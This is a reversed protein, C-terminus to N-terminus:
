GKRSPTNNTCHRSGAPCNRPTGNEYEPRHPTNSHPPWNQPLRDAKHCYTRKPLNHCHRYPHADAVVLSGYSSATGTGAAGDAAFAPISFSVSCVAAIICVSFRSSQHTKSLKM